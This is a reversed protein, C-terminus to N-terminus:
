RGASQVFGISDNGDFARLRSGPRVDPVDQPWGRMKELSASCTLRQSSSAM